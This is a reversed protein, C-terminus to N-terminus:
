ATEKKSSDGADGAARRPSCAPAVKQESSNEKARWYSYGVGAPSEVVLM